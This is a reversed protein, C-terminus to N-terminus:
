QTAWVVSFEAADTRGALYEAIKAEAEARSSLLPSGTVGDLMWFHVKVGSDSAERTPFGVMDWAVIVKKGTTSQIASKQEARAKANDNLTSPEAGDGHVAVTASSKATVDNVVSEPLPQTKDVVVYTGDPLAYAKQTDVLPTSPDVVTGVPIDMAPKSTNDPAPTSTSTGSPKPDAVNDNPATCAALTAVLAFGLVATIATNKINKM